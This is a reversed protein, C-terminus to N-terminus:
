RINARPSAAERWRKIETVDRLEVLDGDANITM